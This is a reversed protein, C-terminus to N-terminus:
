GHQRPSIIIPSIVICLMKISSHVFDLSRILGSECMM